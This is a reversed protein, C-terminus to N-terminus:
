DSGGSGEERRKMGTNETGEGKDRRGEQILRVPRVMM